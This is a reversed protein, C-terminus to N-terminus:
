WPYLPPPGFPPYEPGYPDYIIMLRRYRYRSTIRHSKRHPERGAIHRTKSRHSLGETTSSGSGSIEHIKAEEYSDISSKLNPDLKRMRSALESYYERLYARRSAAHSSLRARKLLYVARSSEMARLRVEEFRGDNASDHQGGTKDRSWSERAAKSPEAPLEGSKPLLDTDTDSGQANEDPAPLVPEGADSSAPSPATLPSPADQAHLATVMMMMILAVSFVVKRRM